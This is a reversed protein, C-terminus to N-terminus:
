EFTKEEKIFVNGQRLVIWGKETWKVVTSPIGSACKEESSLISDDITYIDVFTESIATMTELPPYGSLNSSTTALCGTEALIEQATKHKPIRLGITGSNTPNITTPVLSSAPLILTLSGPWYRKATQQWIDLEQLTGTVYQWIDEPSAGMLILPKDLSRKKLSFILSANEPLVGLAPITDTPFSVVQGTKAAEILQSQCVKPM